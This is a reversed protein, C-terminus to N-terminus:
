NVIVFGGGLVDVIAIIEDIDINVPVNDITIIRNNQLDIDVDINKLVEANNLFNEIDADVTIIEVENENLVRNNNLSNNLFNQLFEVNNDRVDVVDVVQVDQVQLIAAILAGGGVVQQAEAEETSGGIGSGIGGVVLGAIAALSLFKTKM